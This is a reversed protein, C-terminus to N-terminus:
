HDPSMWGLKVFVLPLLYVASISLVYFGTFRWISYALLNEVGPVITQLGQYLLFMSALGAVIRMLRVWWNGEVKFGGAARMMVAGMSVGLFSGANGAVSAMSYSRLLNIDLPLYSSANRIWYAPMDWNRTILLIFVGSLIILFTTALVILLHWYKKLRKLKTTIGTEFRVFCILVALGIGWGAIIQTPFHVGLYVRSLGICLMIIIAFTWCWVTRLSHSALLWVTSAQAHGSPMGFGNPVHIARIGTSVWYPRPAHIAFKLISNISSLLPLYIAMRLGLKRDLSWYVVAIIAMYAQPYGLATFFEMVPKLGLGTNQLAKILGTDLVELCM